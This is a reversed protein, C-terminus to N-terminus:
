PLCGITNDVTFSATPTPNVCITTETFASGCTSSGGLYLRVTYTGAVTFTITLSNSSSPNWNEPNPDNFRNGLNQGAGLTFGSTPSIEWVKFGNSCVGSTSVSKFAPSANTITVPVNVCTITNSTTITPKPYGSVYIPTVSGQTTACPNTAEIKAIFSNSISNSTTGCSNKTYLHTVSTLANAQDFTINPTGDNFLITYNTGPSNSAINLIPFTLPSSECINTNGPSAIGASPNSGLYIIKTLTDKCGNNGTVIELLTNSGKNYTHSQSSNFSTLILDPTGDGWIIRYDTNSSQTGSSNNFTFVSQSSGTCLITTGSLKAEPKQKISVTNTKQNTCGNVDTVTLKVSFNDSGNGYNKFFAHLPNSATESNGDGFDWQYISTPDNAQPFFGLPEGACNANAAAPSFTFDAIPNPNVVLAIANITTDGNDRSIRLTYNGTVSAVYNKQTAGSIPANDKQWQYSFSGPISPMNSTLSLTVTSGQCINISGSPTTTYVTDVFFTANSHGRNAAAAKSFPLIGAILVALLFSITKCSKLENLLKIVM